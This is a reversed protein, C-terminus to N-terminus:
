RVLKLFVKSEQYEIINFGYDDSVNTLDSPDEPINIEFRFLNRYEIGSHLTNAYRPFNRLVPDSESMRILAGKTTTPITYM